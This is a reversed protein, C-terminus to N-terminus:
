GNPPPVTQLTGSSNGKKVDGNNDNDDADNNM